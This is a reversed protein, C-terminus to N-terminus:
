LEQNSVTSASTNPRSNEGSSFSNNTTANSASTLFESAVTFFENQGTYGFPQSLASTADFLFTNISAIATLSDYKGRESEEPNKETTGFTDIEGKIEGCSVILVPEIPKQKADTSVSGIKKIIEFGAILRGFVVHKGNLYPLAKLTIFFQSSNRDRGNNAMSLLGPQNHALFPKDDKFNGWLDTFSLGPSYISEGGTGDGKRIL